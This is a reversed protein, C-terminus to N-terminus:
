RVPPSVLVSRPDRRPDAHNRREIPFRSGPCVSPSSYLPAPRPIEGPPAVVPVCWADWRLITSALFLAVAPGMM